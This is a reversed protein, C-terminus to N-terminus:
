HGTGAYDPVKPTFRKAVFEQFLNGAASSLTGLGTGEFTLAVGQRSAAPYYFNSIGGAALSGLIGSYDFQTHGNDGKCVVANAIAYLIRSGTTGTGKYFYRPDQKFLAPLVAGGLLNGIFVDAYNAGFRKGYGLAGQGYGSYSNEAQEMGAVAGTSLWTFPDVSSRLALMYKERATMPPANPVYTVYFNPIVGLVRQHVEEHFQEVAIDAQTATVKVETTATAMPLVITHADWSEGRRLVGSVTQTAFGKSSVALEFDGAPVNLFNFAGSSDTMQLRSAGTTKLTLTVLAGEYEEGDASAVTGLINAPLDEGAPEQAVTGSGGDAVSVSAARQAMAAPCWVLLVLSFLAAGWQIPLGARGEM